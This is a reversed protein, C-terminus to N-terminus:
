PRSTGTLLPRANKPRCVFLINENSGHVGVYHLLLKIGALVKGKWNLARWTVFLLEKVRIVEFRESLITSIKAPDFSQV